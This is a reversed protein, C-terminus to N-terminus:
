HGGPPGAGRAPPRPRYARRGALGDITSGYADALRAAADVRIVGTREWRRLRSVTIEFGQEALLAVVQQESLGTRARAGRLARAVEAVVPDVREPELDPGQSRHLGPSAGRGESWSTVPSTM